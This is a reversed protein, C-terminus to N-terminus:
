SPFVKSKFKPGFIHQDLSITLIKQDSFSKPGFYKENLCTKPGSFNYDYLFTQDFSIQSWFFNTLFFLATQFKKPVIIEQGIIEM